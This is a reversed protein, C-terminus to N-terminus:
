KSNDTRFYPDFCNVFSSLKALFLWFTHDLLFKFFVNDVKVKTAVLPILGNMNAYPHEIDLEVEADQEAGFM